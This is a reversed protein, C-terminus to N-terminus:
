VLMCEKFDTTEATGGYNGGELRVWQQLGGMFDVPELNADPDQGDAVAGISDAEGRGIEEGTHHDAEHM